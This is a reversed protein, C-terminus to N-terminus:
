TAVPSLSETLDLIIRDMTASLPFISVIGGLRSLCNAVSVPDKQEYLDITQFIDTGQVGMSQAAQTFFGINERQKAPQESTTFKPLLDPRVKNM